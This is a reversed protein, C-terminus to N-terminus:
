AEDVNLNPVEARVGHSVFADIQGEPDTLRYTADVVKEPIIQRVVTLTLKVFVDDKTKTEVGFDDSLVALSQENVSEVFPLKFHLGPGVTRDYKRFREVLGLHQQPVTFFGSVIASIIAVSLVLKVFFAVTLYENLNQM